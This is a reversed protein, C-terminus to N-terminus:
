RFYEEIFNQDVVTMMLDLFSYIITEHNVDSHCLNM